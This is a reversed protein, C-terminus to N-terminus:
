PPSRPPRRSARLGIEGRRPWHIGNLSHALQPFREELHRTSLLQLLRRENQPTAQRRALLGLRQERRWRKVEGWGQM